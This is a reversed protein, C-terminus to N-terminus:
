EAEVGDDPVASLMAGRSARVVTREPTVDIVGEDGMEALVTRAGHLFTADFGIVHENRVDAITVKPVQRDFLSNAAGLATPLHEEQDRLHVLRNLTPMTETALRQSVDATISETLEKQIRPLLTRMQPSNRILSVRNEAMGFFEAIRRGPIGSVIMHAILIDRESLTDPYTGSAM